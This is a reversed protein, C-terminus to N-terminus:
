ARLRFRVPFQVPAAIARGAMQAPHFRWAKVAAVAASDLGSDGSSKSITVATVRGEDSVVVNLLVVGERRALRAERPYAPQPNYLYSPPLFSGGGGGGALGQGVGAAHPTGRHSAHAAHTATSASPRDLIPPPAPAVPLGGDLIPVSAADQAAPSPPIPTSEPAPLPAIEDPAAPAADAAQPAPPVAPQLSVYFATFPQGDGPGVGEGQGWAFYRVVLALVLGHLCVSCALPTSCIFRM